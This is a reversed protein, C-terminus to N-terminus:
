KSLIKIINKASTIKYIKQISKPIQSEPKIEVKPYSISM